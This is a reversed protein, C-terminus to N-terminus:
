YLNRLTIIVKVTTTLFLIRTQVILRFYFHHPNELRGLITRVSMARILHRINLTCHRIRQNTLRNFIPHLPWAHAFIMDPSRFHWVIIMFNVITTIRQKVIIIMILIFCLLSLQFTNVVVLIEMKTIMLPDSSLRNLSLWLRKLLLKLIILSM